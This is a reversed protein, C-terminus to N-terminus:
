HEFISLNRQVQVLADFEARKCVFVALVFQKLVKNESGVCLNILQKSLARVDIFLFVYLELKFDCLYFCKFHRKQQVLFVVGFELCKDLM